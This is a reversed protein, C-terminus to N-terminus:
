QLESCSLYIDARQCAASDECPLEIEGIVDQMRVPCRYFLHKDNSSTPRQKPSDALQLTIPSMLMTHDHHGVSVVLRGDNLVANHLLLGSVNVRRRVTDAEEGATQLVM